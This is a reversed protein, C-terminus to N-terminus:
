HRDRLWYEPLWYYLCLSSSDKMSQWLEHDEKNAWKLYRDRELELRRWERNRSESELPERVFQKVREECAGFTAFNSQGEILSCENAGGALDPFVLQVMDDEWFCINCIGYSGPLEDFVEYGCCPCPYMVAAAQPAHYAM